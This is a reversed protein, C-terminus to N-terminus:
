RLLFLVADHTVGGRDAILHQYGFDPTDFDSRGKSQAEGSYREHLYQSLEMANIAEDGDKDARGNEVAEKFFYSLYGGARFKGAVLSPVDEDSSFLGMRGPRSVVDKAFGGSYCSDLIILSVATGIQDFLVSVRDDSITGNSLALTEDYGDADAANPGSIRAEQGGHGSYFFVFVDDAGVRSSLTTFAQTVNEITADRDILTIANQAAMGASDILADRAVIADDATFSLDGWGPNTQRLESYDSIGVFIGYVNSGADVSIASQVFSIASLNADLRYTGTEAERYSTAIVSYRGSQPLQLEVVSRATNGEHDDNEIESGDPTVVRLFTDFQDSNLEIRVDQGANGTFSYFDQFRGSEPTADGEELRGSAVQGFDLTFTDRSSQEAVTLRSEGEIRLRYGGTEGVNYSTVHVRYTGSEELESEIMSHGTIEMDDNQVISGFPSELIVYTDFDSSTLDVMVRQGPTGQFEYTDQYQGGSRTADNTALAGEQDRNIGIASSDDSSITLTYPGNEDAYYSSVLVQYQGSEELSLNLLSRRTDGNYDDNSFEEGSPSQVILYSDFDRSRLDIVVEEGPNGLFSHNDQYAGNDRTLDNVQLQGLEVRGQDDTELEIDSESLRETAALESVYVTASVYGEDGVTGIWIDYTGSNDGTFELQPNLGEGSDDDCLWAGTPTNIVLSTDNDSLVSLYLTELGAGYELQLDPADAISGICAGALSAADIDGGAFVDVTYPDPLFGSTLTIDGYTATLSYDQAQVLNMSLLSLFAFISLRMTAEM